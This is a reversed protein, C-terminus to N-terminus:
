GSRRLLLGGLLSLSRRRLAMCNQLAGDRKGLLRDPSCGSAAQIHLIRDVQDLGGNSSRWEVQGGFQAVEKRAIGGAPQKAIAHLVRSRGRAAGTGEGAASPSRESVDDVRQTASSPAM